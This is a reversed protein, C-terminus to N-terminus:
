PRGLLRRLLGPRADRSDSSGYYGHYYNYYYDGGSALAEDARNLVVGIVKDRGLSDLARQIAIAPTTGAGIVLIAADIMTGLLRADSLLGVPPTDLIVWDFQEAADDILAAMRSSTLGAIPDPTARGAPLVSLLPAVQVVPLRQHDRRDLVESLGAGNPIGFAVNVRPRRLDADILLVRKAYSHSLTLALNTSTLTKGENAVASSVLVRRVGRDEQLHHLTAALRRYQEVAVAPLDPNVVLRSDPRVSIGNLRPTSHGHEGPHVAPAPAADRTAVTAERTVVPADRPVVADEVGAGLPATLPIDLLGDSISPTGARKLADGIRSM